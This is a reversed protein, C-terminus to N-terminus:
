SGAIVLTNRANSPIERYKVSVNNKLKMEDALSRGTNSQVTTVELTNCMEFEYSFDWKKNNLFV